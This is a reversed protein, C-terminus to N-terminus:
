RRKQRHPGAIHRPQAAVMLVPEAQVNNRM